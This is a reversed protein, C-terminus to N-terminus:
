EKLIEIFDKQSLGTINPKLNIEFIVNANNTNSLRRIEYCGNKDSFMYTRNNYVFRQNKMNKSTFIILHGNNFSVRYNPLELKNIYETISDKYIMGVPSSGSKKVRYSCKIDFYESVKDISFITYNNSIVYKTNKNKYYEIIWKSFVKDSSPFNIILGATGANKFKLYNDNMYDIITQTTSTLNSFNKPSFVFKENSEDPILVFQGCQAPSHKVEIFFEKNKFTNVKIDSVTSDLGGSAEFSAYENFNEYLYKLCDREFDQWLSM